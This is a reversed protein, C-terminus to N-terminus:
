RELQLLFQSLCLVLEQHVQVADSHAHDLVHYLLIVFAVHVVQGPLDDHVSPGIHELSDLAVEKSHSIIVKFLQHNPVSQLCLLSFRCKEVIIIRILGPFSVLQLLQYGVLKLSKQFKFVVSDAM